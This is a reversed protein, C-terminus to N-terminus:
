KEILAKLLCSEVCDGCLSCRDANILTATKRFGSVELSILRLHCAAVCRGCGSCLAADIKPVVQLSAKLAGSGDAAMHVRAKDTKPQLPLLPPMKSRRRTGAAQLHPPLIHLTQKNAAQSRTKETGHHNIWAPAPKSDAGAFRLKNSLGSGTSNM